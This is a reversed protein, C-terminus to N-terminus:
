PPTQMMQVIKKTVIEKDAGIEEAFKEDVAAGGVLIKLKERLGAEKLAEVTERIAQLTSDMSASLGVIKMAKTEQVKKVFAEKPVDNGLDHVECGSAKLFAAIIDKGMAHAEGKVCGIVARGKVPTGCVLRPIEVYKDLIELAAYAADASKLMDACEIEKNDCMQKLKRIPKLVGEAIVEQKSFPKKGITESIIKANDTDAKLIVEALEDFEKVM